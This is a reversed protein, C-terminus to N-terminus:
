PRLSRVTLPPCNLWKRLGSITLLVISNLLGPTLACHQSSVSAALRLIFDMAFSVASRAEVVDVGLGNERSVPIMLM